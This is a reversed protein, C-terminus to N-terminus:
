KTVIRLYSEHHLYIKEFYTYKPNILSDQTIVLYLLKNALESDVEM